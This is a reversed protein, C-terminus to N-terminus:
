PPPAIVTIKTLCRLLFLQTQTDQSVFVTLIKLSESYQASVEKSAFSDVPLSAAYFLGIVVLLLLVVKLSIAGCYIM